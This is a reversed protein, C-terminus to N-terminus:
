NGTFKGCLTGEKIRKVWAHFQALSHDSGCSIESVHGQARLKQMCDLQNQQVKWGKIKKMEQFLVRDEFFVMHDPWGPVMGLKLATGLESAVSSGNPVHVNLVGMMNLTQSYQASEDDEGREFGPLPTKNLWSMWDPLLPEYPRDALTKLVLPRPAAKKGPDKVRRRKM